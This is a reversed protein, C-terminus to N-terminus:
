GPARKFAGYRYYVNSAKYRKDPLIYPGLEYESTLVALDAAAQKFQETDKPYATIFKGSETWDANKSNKVIWEGRSVTFKLSIKQKFLYDATARLLGEEDKCGASLHIKWGQAPLKGPALLYIWHRDSWTQWGAPPKVQYPQMKPAADEFFSSKEALLFPVYDEIAYKM